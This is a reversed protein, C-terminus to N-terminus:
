TVKSNFTGKQFINLSSLLVAEATPMIRKEINARHEVKAHLIKKLYFNGLWMM